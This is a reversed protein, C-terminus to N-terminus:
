VKKVRGACVTHFADLRILLSALLVLMLIGIATVDMAGTGGEGDGPNNTGGGPNNGGDLATVRVAALFRLSGGLHVATLEDMELLRPGVGPWPDFVEAGVVNPGAPTQYYQVATLVMAHSRAGIVLPQDDDLSAIIQSNNISLLGADADYLGTVRARFRAGSDDVWDRDLQRAIVIGAMAPLNVPSGYVESVIREQSVPYGQYGFVTAISAAWCWQSQLQSQLAQEQVGSVNLRTTCLTGFSTQQCTTRAEAHEGFAAILLASLLIFSTRM